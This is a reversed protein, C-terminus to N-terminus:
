SEKWDGFISFRGVRYYGTFWTCGQRPDDDSAQWGITIHTAQYESYEEEWMRMTTLAAAMASEQSDFSEERPPQTEWLAEGPFSAGFVPARVKREPLSLIWRGPYEICPDGRQSGPLDKFHKM